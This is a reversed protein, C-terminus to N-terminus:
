VKNIGKEYLIKILEKPVECMSVFYNSIWRESKEMLIGQALLYTNLSENSQPPGRM